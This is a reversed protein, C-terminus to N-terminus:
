LLAPRISISFPPAEAVPPFFFYKRPTPREQLVSVSLHLRSPHFYYVCCCFSFLVFIGVAWQAVEKLSIILPSTSNNGWCRTVPHRHMKEIEREREWKIRKLYLKGEKTNIYLIIEFFFSFFFFFFLLCNWGRIMEWQIRNPQWEFHSCNLSSRIAISMRWFRYIRNCTTERSWSNRILASHLLHQNKKKHHPSHLLLSPHLM